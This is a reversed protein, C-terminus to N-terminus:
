NYSVLNTADYQNSFTRKRETKGKSEEEKKNKEIIGEINIQPQFGIFFTLEEIMIKKVAEVDNTLVGTMISDHVTIAITGPLEKYIRKLIIDLM